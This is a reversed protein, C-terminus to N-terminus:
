EPKFSASPSNQHRTHNIEAAEELKRRVKPELYDSQFQGPSFIRTARLLVDFGMKDRGTAYYSSALTTYVYHNEVKLADRDRRALMKQHREIGERLISEGRSREGLKIYIEGLNNYALIYDPNGSFQGDGELALEHHHIADLCLSKHACRQSREYELWGLNRQIRWWYYGEGEYATEYLNLAEKLQQAAAQRWGDIASIGPSRNGADAANDAAAALRKYSIGLHYRYRFENPKEDVLTSFATVAGQFNGTDFEAVGLPFLVDPNKPYKKGLQRLIPLADTAIPESNKYENSKLVSVAATLADADATALIQADSARGSLLKSQLTDFVKLKCERQDKLALPLDARVPGQYKEISFEGKGSIGLQALKKALGELEAKVDGTVKASQYEGSTAVIGCIRDATDSIVKLLLETKSDADAALAESACLLSVCLVAGLWQAARM